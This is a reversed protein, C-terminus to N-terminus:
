ALWATVLDKLGGAMWKDDIKATADFGHEGEEIALYFKADADVESVKNMLKVSGEVPVVTDGKGHWVFVGGSPFRAGDDLRDLIFLDRREAPFLNKYGANQVMSFMLRARELTPDASIISPVEGKGIKALHEDLLYVPLHPFGFMPKEYAETFHGSKGDVFPYAATVARIDDPHNLGLMLSLYGGASDGSTMIRSTDVRITGNTQERVFTPLEALVWIWLDEIDRMINNISSEPTLRYNPSVIIALHRSALELHWPAFFDPFLSSGSVFGGGHIRLLIPSSEPSTTRNTLSKPILIDTSIQHSSATKYTTTLIDFNSFRSFDNPNFQAM